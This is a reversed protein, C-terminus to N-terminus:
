AKRGGHAAYDRGADFAPVLTASAVIPPWIRSRGRNKANYLAVDAPTPFRSSSLELSGILRRNVM